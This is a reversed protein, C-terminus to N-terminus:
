EEQSKTHLKVYQDHAKKGFAYDVAITGFFDDIFKLAGRAEPNDKMKLETILEHYKEIFIDEIDVWAPENMLSRIRIYKAKEERLQEENKM